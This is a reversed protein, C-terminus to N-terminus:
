SAAGADEEAALASKGSHLRLSPLPAGREPVRWGLESEPAGVPTYLEVDIPLAHLKRWILSGVESWRLGGKGCGLAPMAVSTLGWQGVHAAFFDLGREVDTLRSPSRWHSKTPFNIIARGSADRYLYPAGLNVQGASCRVRYDEFMGPFRQKFELAVGKGMIGVCNVANVWAAAPSEFLNGIVTKFM